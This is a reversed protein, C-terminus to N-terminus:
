DKIKFYEEGYFKEDVGIEGNAYRRLFELYNLAEFIDKPADDFGFDIFRNDSGYGDGAPSCATLDVIKQFEENGACNACMMFIDRIYAKYAIYKERALDRPSVTKNMIETPKKPKNM